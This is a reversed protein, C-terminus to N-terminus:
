NATGKIGNSASMGFAAAPDLIWFQFYLSTAAPLSQPVMFPLTVTGAASTPLPVIVQPNPILTGGLFPLDVASLGVILTAISSPAAGELAILNSSSAALSGSGALRPMGQSGSKGSGLNAFALPELRAVLTRADGAVHKSGVAIMECPGTQHVDAFGFSTLHDLGELLHADTFTQGDFLSV